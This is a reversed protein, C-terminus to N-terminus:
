RPCSEWQATRVLALWPSSAGAAQGSNRGSKSRGGIYPEFPDRRTMREKFSDPTADPLLRLRLQPLARHEVFQLALLRCQQFQKDATHGIAGADNQMAAQEEGFGVGIAGASETIGTVQQVQNHRVLLLLQGRGHGALVGPRLSEEKFLRQLREQRFHRALAAVFEVENLPTHAGAKLFEDGFAVRHEGLMQHRLLLAVGAGDAQGFAFGLLKLFELAARSRRRFSSARWRARENCPTSRM